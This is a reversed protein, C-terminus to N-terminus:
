LNLDKMLNKMRQQNEAKDLPKLTEQELAPRQPSPFVEGQRVRAQIKEYEQKFIPFAVHESNNQLFYWDCAKGAYYIAPHSWKYDAKPSSARCAEVYATHANPLGNQSNQECYTIMTRLTPLFENNEIVSKAASLLVEASYKGLSDLWLRKTANLDTESAYAKFFQNHYNRKFVAFIQNIADIINDTSRDTPGAETPLNKKM